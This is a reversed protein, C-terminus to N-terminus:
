GDLAGKARLFAACISSAPNAGTAGGHSQLVRRGDFTNIHVGVSGEISRTIYASHPGDLLGWAADLSGVFDPVRRRGPFSPEKGLLHGEEVRAHGWGAAEAVMRNAEAPDSECLALFEAAKM